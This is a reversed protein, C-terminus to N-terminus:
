LVRLSVLPKEMRRVCWHSPRCVGHDCEECHCGEKQYCNEIKTVKRMGQCSLQAELYSLAMKILMAIVIKCSVRLDAKIATSMGNYFSPHSLTM